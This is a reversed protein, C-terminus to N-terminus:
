KERKETQKCILIVTYRICSFGSPSICSSSWVINVASNLDCCREGGSCNLKASVHFRTSMARLSIKTYPWSHGCPASSSAMICASSCSRISKTLNSSSFPTEIFFNRVIGRRSSNYLVFCPGAFVNPYICDDIKLQFLWRSDSARFMLSLRWIEREQVSKTKKTQPQRSRLNIKLSTRGCM